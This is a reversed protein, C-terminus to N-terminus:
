KTEAVRLGSRDYSHLIKAYTTANEAIAQAQAKVIGNVIARAHYFDADGPKRGAPITKDLAAAANHTFLNHTVGVVLAQAALKPEVLRDPDAILAPELQQRGRAHAVGGCDRPPVDPLALQRSMEAYRGAHTTQVYGRGRFTYGDDTNPRNGDDRGYNENFWAKSHGTEVMNAGFDSETQATALLYALQNSDTTGAKRAADIIAPIATMAATRDARPVHELLARLLATHQGEISPGASANKLAKTVITDGPQPVGTALSKTAARQAPRSPDHHITPRPLIPQASM